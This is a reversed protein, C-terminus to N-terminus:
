DPRPAFPATDAIARSGASDVPGSVGMLDVRRRRARRSLQCFAPLSHRRVRDAIVRVRGCSICRRASICLLPADCFRLAGVASAFWDGAARWPRANGDTGAFRPKACELQYLAQSRSGFCWAKMPWSHPNQAPRRQQSESGVQCQVASSWKGGWFFFFFFCFVSV